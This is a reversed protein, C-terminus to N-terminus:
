VVLEATNTEKDSYKRQIMTNLGKIDSGIIEKIKEIDEDLIASLEQITQEINLSSLPEIIKKKVQEKQKNGYIQNECDFTLYYVNGVHCTLNQLNEVSNIAQMLTQGRTDKIEPKM